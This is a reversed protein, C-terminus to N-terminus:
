NGSHSRPQHRWKGRRGTSGATTRRTARRAQADNLRRLEGILRGLQEHNVETPPAPAPDPDRGIGPVMLQLVMIVVALVGSIAGLAALEPGRARVWRSFWGLEPSATDIADAIEDPTASADLTRLHQMLSNAAHLEEPTSGLHVYRRGLMPTEEQHRATFFTGCSDCHLKLTPITGGGDLAMLLNGYYIWGCKPCQAKPSGFTVPPTSYIAIVKAMARVKRLREQRLHREYKRRNKAM